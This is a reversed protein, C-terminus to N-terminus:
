RHMMIVYNKLKEIEEKELYLSLTPDELLDIEYFIFESLMNLNLAKQLKQIVPIKWGKDLGISLGSICEWVELDPRSSKKLESERYGPEYMWAAKVLGYIMWVSDAEVKVHDPITQTVKVQPNFTWDTSDLGNAAYVSEFKQELRPNNRNLIKAITIEDLAEKKQGKLMYIDALMWHAFFDIYNAHIAKKYWDEALDFNQEIGYTQAIYAMMEFYNPDLLLARKYMDRASSYQKLNFFDEGRNYAIRADNSIEFAKLSFRGNQKVRYINPTNIKASRDPVPIKRNLSEVDYIIKSDKLLDMIEKLSSMQEAFAFGFAYLLSLLILKIKNM